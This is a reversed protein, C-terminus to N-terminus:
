SQTTHYFLNCTSKNTFQSIDDASVLYQNLKLASISLITKQIELWFSLLLICLRTKLIADPQIDMRLQTRPFYQTSSM